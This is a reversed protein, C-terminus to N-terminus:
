EAARVGESQQPASGRRLYFEFADDMRGGLYPVMYIVAMGELHRAHQMPGVDVADLGLSEVLEGVRAKAEADNGALPVSVRGGVASPDAIVHFGVTNFAKVVRAEPLRAQIREGASDDVVMEMLRQDNMRLANTVDIVIKGSMAGLQALTDDIGGWPVALVVIDGAAAADAPTAARASEGSQAVLDTVSERQPERSGYVVPYGLGGLRRGLAGGMRGTGIIAITEQQMSKEGDAAGAFPMLVTAFLCLWTLRWIPM